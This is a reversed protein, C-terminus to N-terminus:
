ALLLQIDWRRCDAGAITKSDIHIEQTGLQPNYNRDPHPCPDRHTRESPWNCEPDWELRNYHGALYHLFCVDTAENGKWNVGDLPVVKGILDGNTRRQPPLKSSDAVLPLNSNPEPKKPDFVYQKLVVIGILLAIIILAINGSFQVVRFAKEM